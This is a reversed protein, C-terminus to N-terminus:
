AADPVPRVAEIPTGAPPIRVRIEATHHDGHHEIWLSADYGRVRLDHAILRLQHSAAHLETLDRESM